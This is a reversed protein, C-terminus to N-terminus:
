GESTGTGKEASSLVQLVFYLPSKSIASYGEEAVRKERNSRRLLM